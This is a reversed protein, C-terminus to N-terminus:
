LQNSTYPQGLNKKVIEPQLTIGVHIPNIINICLFGHRTINEQEFAFYARPLAMGCVFSWPKTKLLSREYM